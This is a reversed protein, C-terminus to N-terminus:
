NGRSITKKEENRGMPFGGGGGGCVCLAYVLEKLVLVIENRENYEWHRTHQNISMGAWGRVYVSYFIFQFM